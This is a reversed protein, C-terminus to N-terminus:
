DAETGGLLDAIARKMARTSATALAFHELQGVEVGKGMKAAIESIRCSGVGDAYRSGKSARVRFVWRRDHEIEAEHTGLIELSIGFVTALRTAGTRNLQRVGQIVDACNNDALIVSKFRLYEDWMNRAEELAIEPRVVSPVRAALEATKRKREEFQEVIEVGGQFPTPVRANEADTASM